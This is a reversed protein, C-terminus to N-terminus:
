ETAHTSFVSTSASTSNVDDATNKKIMSGSIATQMSARVGMIKMTEHIDAGDVFEVKMKQTMFSITAAAVGETKAAAAEMKEACNACDVEIAYTKKM